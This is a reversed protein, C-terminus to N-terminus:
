PIFVFENSLLLAHAFAEWSGSALFGAARSLEEERAPRGHVIRHLRDVRGPGEPEAAVDPRRSLRRACDAVFPSNMLFLAQQPVTTEDRQATPLDPDAFDFARYFGPLNQRDVLGYLTRRRSFPLAELDAPKGGVTRDLEGSVSLLSDRLAEFDLRRLEMRGFLRNEPDTRVEGQSSQRYVSSCLLLRHLKKTSGGEARFWSSLWDLLAPHTPAEGRTGFEGPTRVLGKGFHGAWVRNVWVRTAVPNRPDAIARALELRGSGATFVPRSEGSLCALFRRPVEEGLQSPNGRKFVRQGSRPKPGDEVSM